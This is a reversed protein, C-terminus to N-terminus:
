EYSETFFYLYFLERDQISGTEEKIYSKKGRSIPMNIHKPLEKKWKM